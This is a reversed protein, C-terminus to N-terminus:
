CLSVSAQRNLIGVREGPRNFRTGLGHVRNSATFFDPIPGPLPWLLYGPALAFRAAGTLLFLLLSGQFPALLAKTAIM